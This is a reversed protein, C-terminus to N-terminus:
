CLKIAVISFKDNSYSSPEGQAYARNIVILYRNGCKDTIECINGETKPNQKVREVALISLKWLQDISKLQNKEAITFNTVSSNILVYRSIDTNLGLEPIDIYCYLNGTTINVSWGFVQDLKGCVEYDSYSVENVFLYAASELIGWVCCGGPSQQQGCNNGSVDCYPSLILQGNRNHTYKSLNNQDWQVLLWLTRLKDLRQFSQTCCDPNCDPICCDVACSDKKNSKSTACKKTSKRSKTKVLINELKIEDCM